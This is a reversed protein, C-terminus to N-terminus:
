ALFVDLKENIEKEKRKYLWIILACATMVSFLIIGVLVMETNM